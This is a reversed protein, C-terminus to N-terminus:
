SAYLIKVISLSIPTIILCTTGVVWTGNEKWSFMSTLYLHNKGVGLALVEQFNELLFPCKGVRCSLVLDVTSPICLFNKTGIFIEETYIPYTM